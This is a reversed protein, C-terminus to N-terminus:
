NIRFWITDGNLNYKRQSAIEKKIARIKKMLETESKAEVDVTKVFENLGGGVVRYFDVEKTM